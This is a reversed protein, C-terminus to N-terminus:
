ARPHAKGYVRRLREQTVHTYIQTTAVSEHGLLEQVSRLDAGHELLHTAFSHRFTHPTCGRALAAQEVYKKVTRAVSRATLRTGLRNVFLPQEGNGRGSGRGGAGSEVVGGARLLAPRGHRLYRDLAALAFTGVPVQREKAGKGRVRVDGDSYDIDTVNLGVLESVRLGSGYLLEFMARDRQGLPTTVDPLGLLTEVASEDLFNPLRKEQKPTRVLRGPSEELVGERVLFRLLSRVTALKRGISRKAYGHQQLDGLWGRLVRVNVQAWPLAPGQWQWDVGGGAAAAAAAAEGVDPQWWSVFQQVDRGYNLLTHPSASKEVKMYTLFAEVHRM